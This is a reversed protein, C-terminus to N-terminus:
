SNDEGMEGWGSSSRIYKDVICFEKNQAVRRAYNEISMPGKKLRRFYIIEWPWLSASGFYAEISLHRENEKPLELGYHKLALYMEESSISTSCSTQTIAIMESDPKKIPPPMQEMELVGSNQFETREGLREPSLSRATLTGKDLLLESPNTLEFLSGSMIHNDIENREMHHDKELDEVKSSSPVTENGVMTPKEIRVNKSDANRDILQGQEALIAKSEPTTANHLTEKLYLPVKNLSSPSLSLSTPLIPSSRTKYSRFATYQSKSTSRSNSSLSDARSSASRSRNSNPPSKSSQSTTHSRSTSYKFHHSSSIPKRAKKAVSQRLSGNERRRRKKGGYDVEHERDAEKTIPSSGGKILRRHNRSGSAIRNDKQRRASMDDRSLQLKGWSRSGCRDLEGKGRGSKNADDDERLDFKTPKRWSSHEKPCNHVKHGSGGCIYCTKRPKSDNPSNLAAADIQEKGLKEQSSRTAPSGGTYGVRQTESGGKGDYGQYPEYRDFGIGNEVGNYNSPDFAKGGWRDNDALNAIVNGGEDHLTQFKEETNHKIIDENYATEDDLMDASHLRGGDSDPHKFGMKYDRWSNSGMKRSAYDGGRGANMGHQSEYLRAGREYKRFPRPQKNSWTLTLPEGCIKRGQLAKLAKEADPRVDFVVFGYGDKKLQVNCSGFRRFIHELEGRQTRASLNGIYLSM